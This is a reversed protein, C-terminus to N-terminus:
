PKRHCAYFNQQLNRLYIRHWSLLHEPATKSLLLYKPNEKAKQKLLSSNFENVSCNFLLSIFHSRDRKSPVIIENVSIPGTITELEVGIEHLAVKKVRDLWQERFRIIGGPLHWGSGTHKDDRWTYLVKGDTDRLLLDVNVYPTLRGVFYFLEDHLGEQPNNIIAELQDILNNM